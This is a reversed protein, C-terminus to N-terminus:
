GARRVLKQWALGARCAGYNVQSSFPGQFALWYTTNRFWRSFRSPPIVIKIAYLKGEELGPIPKPLNLATLKCRYVQGAFGGGLFKDVTLEATGTIAPFVGTISIPLVTGTEYRTPRHRITLQSSAATHALETCLDSSYNTKAM